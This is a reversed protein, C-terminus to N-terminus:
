RNELYQDFRGKLHAVDVSLDTVRGHVLNVDNKVDRIDRIADPLSWGGNADKQIPRMQKEIHRQMNDLTSNMRHWLIGVAVVPPAAVSIVQAWSAAENVDM